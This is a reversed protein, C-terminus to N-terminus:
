STHSKLAIVAEAVQNRSWLYLYRPHEGPLWDDIKYLPKSNFFYPSSLLDIKRFHGSLIDKNEFVPQNKYSTTLLYQTNSELYNNLLLLTDQYSLHFLCDRCIMLDAKPLKDKTLDLKLFKIHSNAYKKNNEILPAVIDAGIYIINTSTVVHRMWNFDGCPGDFVTHISFKDFLKPLEQRLNNTLELTSGDGSKSESNGWYNIEYIKTFREQISLRPLMKRFAKQQLKRDTNRWFLLKNLFRNISSARM